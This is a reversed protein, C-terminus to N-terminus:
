SVRDPWNIYCDFLLNVGCQASSARFFIPFYFNQVLCQMIVLCSALPAQLKARRSMKSVNISNRNRYLDEKVKDQYFLMILCSQCSVLRSLCDQEM